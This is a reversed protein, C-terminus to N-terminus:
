KKKRPLQNIVTVPTGDGVLDGVAGIGARVAAELEERSPLSVGDRDLVEGQVALDCATRLRLSGDFLLRLELRCLDVLLAEAAAPLGYSAIQSLDIAAYCVIQRAVWDTRDYPVMGYGETSGRGEDAGTLVSDKKVGGSHAERVDHAEIFATITRPVRPQGLFDKQSFFVGHILVFPDLAFLGSAIERPARQRDDVLGLRANIVEPAPSGDVTGQRIWASALRHAEIRSSTLFTGDPDRVEVYPLGAVVDAPRDNGAPWLTAELRNAMSQSSEVLLCREWGGDPAPREFEAHGLNPFGTPQFRSGQVPALEVEFLQRAPM